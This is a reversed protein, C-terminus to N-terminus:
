LPPPSRKSLDLRHCRGDRVRRTFPVALLVNMSSTPRHSHPNAANSNSAEGKDPPSAAMNPFWAQRTRELHPTSNLECKPKGEMASRYMHPHICVSGRTTRGPTSSSGKGRTRRGWQRDLAQHCRKLDTNPTGALCLHKKPFSCFFRRRPTNSGNRPSAVQLKGSIHTTM